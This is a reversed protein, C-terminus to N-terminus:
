GLADDIVQRVAAADLDKKDLFAIAGANLGLRHFERDPYASILVIRTAPSVAKVRRTCYIGDEDTLVVDILALQPQASEALRVAEAVDDAEYLLTAPYTKGIMRGLQQRYRPNDDVLLVSLRKSSESEAAQTDVERGTAALVEPHRMLYSLAESRSYVGLSRYLRTLHNEITKVSLGTAQAIKRNDNGQALLRLLERQRRTLQPTISPLSSASRHHLLREVLQGSIWRDGALVRQVALRLDALPQEKLHYGDVGVDLLGVVYSEDAHASVVLVKLDPYQVKIQRVAGIPEFDPMAVDVILLDIPHHALAEVLEPGTGVEAAVVLDPLELLANRLGARVIEHDDALIVRTPSMGGNHLLDASFSIALGGWVPLNGGVGFPPNQPLCRPSTAM